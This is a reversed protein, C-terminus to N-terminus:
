QCNKVISDCEAIVQAYCNLRETLSGIDLKVEVFIITIGGFTKFQYEIRGKSAFRGELIAEPTNFLIGSFLNV